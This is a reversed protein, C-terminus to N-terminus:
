IRFFEKSFPSDFIVNSQEFRKLFEHMERATQSELVIFRVTEPKGKICIVAWSDGYRVNHDVGVDLCGALIEKTDTLSNYARNYNERAEVIADELKQQKQFINNLKEIEEKFLWNKILAKINTM